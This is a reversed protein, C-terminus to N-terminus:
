EAAAPSPSRHPPSPDNPNKIITEEEEEEAAPRQSAREDVSVIHDEAGPPHKREFAGASALSQPSEPEQEQKGGGGGEGVVSRDRWLSSAM